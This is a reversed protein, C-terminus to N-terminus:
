RPPEPFLTGSGLSARDWRAGDGGRPGRTGVVAPLCCSFVGPMPLPTEAAGLMKCFVGFEIVTAKTDPNM